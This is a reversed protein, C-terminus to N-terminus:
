KHRLKSRLNRANSQAALLFEGPFPGSVLVTFGFAFVGIQM